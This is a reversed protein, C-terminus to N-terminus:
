HCKKKFLEQNLELNEVLPVVADLYAEAVEFCDVPQKGVALAEGPTLHICM